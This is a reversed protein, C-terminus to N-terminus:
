LLEGNQDLRLDMKAMNSVFDIYLDSKAMTIHVDIPLSPNKEQIKALLDKKAKKDINIIKFFDLEDYLAWIGGYPILYDKQKEIAEAYREAYFNATDIANKKREEITPMTKEEIQPGNVIKSMIPQKAENYKKLWITFNSSNYFVQTQGSPLFDGALGAKVALIVEEGSMGGFTKIDDSLILIEAKQETEPWDRLGLKSKVIMFVRSALQIRQDDTYYKIKTKQSAEVIQSEKETLNALTKQASLIISHEM